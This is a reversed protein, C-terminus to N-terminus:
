QKVAIQKCDCAFYPVVDEIWYNINTKEFRIKITDNEWNNYGEWNTSFLQWRNGQNGVLLSHAGIRVYMPYNGFNEQKTTFTFEGDFNEFRISDYNTGDNDIAVLRMDYLYSGLTDYVKYDGAFKELKTPEPPLPVKDKTCGVLAAGSSLALMILVIIYYKKMGM